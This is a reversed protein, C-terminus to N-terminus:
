ATEKPAPGHRWWTEDAFDTLVVWGDVDGDRIKVFGDHWEAFPMVEFPEDGMPDGPQPYVWLGPIPWWPPPTMTASYTHTVYEVPGDSNPLTM